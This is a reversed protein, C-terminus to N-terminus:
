ATRSARSWSTSGARRARVARADRARSRRRRAWGPRVPRRSVAPVRRGDAERLHVASRSHLRAVGERAGPRTALDHGNVLIRGSTPKLLGAIMRITTTKGAGNPGLFGHIEGPQSRSASATSRPSRATSDQRSRSRCDHPTPSRRRSSWCDAPACAVPDRSDVLPSPDTRRPRGSDPTSNPALKSISSRRDESPRHAASHRAQKDLGGRALRLADRRGSVPEVDSRGAAVAARRAGEDISVGGAVRPLLVRRPGCVCASPSARPFALRARWRSTCRRTSTATASRRACCRARRRCASPRSRTSCARQRAADAARRPRPRRRCEAVAAEAEAVIEPADSEILPEPQLYRALDPDAAGPQLAQPDRM